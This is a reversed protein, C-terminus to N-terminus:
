DEAIVCLWYPHSFSKNLAQNFPHIHLCACKDKIDEPWFKLKIKIEDTQWRSILIWKGLSALSCFAGLWCVCIVGLVINYM